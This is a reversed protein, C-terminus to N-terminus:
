VLGEEMKQVYEGYTMNAEAALAVIQEITYGDSRKPKREIANKRVNEKYAAREYASMGVMNTACELWYRANHHRQVIVRGCLRCRHESNMNKVMLSYVSVMITLPADM